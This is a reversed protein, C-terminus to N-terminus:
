FWLKGYQGYCSVEGNRSCKGCSEVNVVLELGMMKVVNAVFVLGTMKVVNIVVM